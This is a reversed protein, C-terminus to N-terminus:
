WHFDHPLYVQAHRRLKSVVPRGPAISKPTARIFIRWSSTTAPTGRHPTKQGMSYWRCPEISETPITVEKIMRDLDGHNVPPNTMLPQSLFETTPGTSVWLYMPLDSDAKYYDVKGDEGRPVNDCHWNPICPYMGAMLMHIKIDFEYNGMDEAFPSDGIIELLEPFHKAIDAVNGRHIGCPREQLQRDSLPSAGTSNMPTPTNLLIM